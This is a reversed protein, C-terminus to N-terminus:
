GETWGPLVAALSRWAAIACLGNGGCEAVGLGGDQGGSLGFGDNRQASDPGGAVGVVGAGVM